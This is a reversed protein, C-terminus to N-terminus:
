AQSGSASQFLFLRYTKYKAFSEGSLSGSFYKHNLKTFRRKFKWALFKSLTPHRHQILGCVLDRLPTGVEALIEGFMRMTPATRDTLDIDKLKKLPLGDIAELFESIPHGGGLPGEEPLGRKFFDSVILYGSPNLLEAAKTLSRIVPVYQFSESFLVLDYKKDTALDEFKVPYVGVRDGLRQKVKETLFPSPSVCDVRYGRSTLQAALEGAGSGVDLITKVGTPFQSLLFESYRAQAIAFNAIKVELDDSWYGYHLESFDFLKKGLLLGAALGVEKSDVLKEM